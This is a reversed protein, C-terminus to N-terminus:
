QLLLLDFIPVMVPKGLYYKQVKQIWFYDDTPPDSIGQTSIGVGAGFMAVIIGNKPLLDMHSGWTVGGVPVSLTPDGAQNQSFYSLRTPSAVNFTDGFFFTTTSDEYKTDTNTLDPFLQGTRVSIATSSNIHGVPLQWLVMPLGSAQHLTQVYLLYNLWHDNNWFWTSEGPKDPNYLNNPPPLPNPVFGADLGYKDISLFNAGHSLVGADIAYTATANATQVILARGPVWGLDDTRRIVGQTGLAGNVAWLSLQWGFRVNGGNQAITANIRTVTNVLTGDATTIQSPQKGSNQQMYGLFDPEIVVGYLEGKLVSTAQSLFLHLNVYYAQMFTANQANQLDTAYSDGGGNITYYVFYPILGFLLSEKAYSTVRKPNWGEWGYNIYIYRIDMRTGAAGPVHNQWFALDPFSDESMSGVAVPGPLGPLSGDPNDIRLGMFLVTGDAFTIRMGTRGPSLGRAQITGDTVLLTAVTPNRSIVATVPRDFSFTRTQGKTVHVQLPETKGLIFSTADRNQDIRYDDDTPLPPPPPTYWTGTWAFSSPPSASGPSAIFGFTVSAGPLIEGNFKTPGVTFRTGQQGIITGNWSSSITGSLDFSLQWRELAQSTSTNTLTIEGQFATGWNSDLKYTVQIDDAASVVAGPLLVGAFMLALIVFNRLVLM